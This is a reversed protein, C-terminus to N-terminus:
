IMNKVSLFVYFTFFLLLKKGDTAGGGGGGHVFSQAV